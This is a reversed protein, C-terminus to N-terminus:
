AAESDYWVRYVASEVQTFGLTLTTSTAVTFEKSPSTDPSAAVYDIFANDETLQIAEYRGTILARALTLTAGNAAEGTIREFRRYMKLKASEVANAGLQTVTIGADAVKMGSSSRALTGGDLKVRAGQGANLELGGDADFGVRIDNASVVISADTAVIDLTTGTMTLGAGASVLADAIQTWTVVDTNLTAPGVSVAWRTNALTSGQAVWVFSGEALEAATDADTARTLIYPAGAGGADTVTYLGNYREVGGAENKVLVRDGADVAVSDISLAGNADATLVSGSPTFTPLGAATALRVNNKVRLGQLFASLQSYRVPDNAGSGDSSIQLASAAFTWTVTLDVDIGSAGRIVKGTNVKAALERGNLVELGPNTALVINQGGIISM